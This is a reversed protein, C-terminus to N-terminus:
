LSYVPKVQGVEPVKPSWNVGMSSSYLCTHFIVFVEGLTSKATIQQGDNRAINAKVHCIHSFHINCWLNRRTSVQVSSNVTWFLETPLKTGTALMAYLISQRVLICETCCYCCSAIFIDGTVDKAMKKEGTKWKLATHVYIILCLVSVLRSM